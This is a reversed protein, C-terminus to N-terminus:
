FVGPELGGLVDNHPLRAMCAFPDHCLRERGFEEPAELAGTDSARCVFVRAVLFHRRRLLPKEASVARASIDHQCSSLAAVFGRHDFPPPSKFHSLGTRRAFLAVATRHPKTFILGLNGM